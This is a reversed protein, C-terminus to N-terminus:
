IKHAEIVSTVFPRSSQPGIIRSFGAQKLINKIDQPHRVTGTQMARCYFAFYVDGPRNPRSWGRMPESVIIRGGKPLAEYIKEVLSSVTHDLHDYLVRNLTIVNYGHPLKHDQFSGRHVDIRQTKQQSQFEEVAGDIVHPLDFLGLSKVHGHRELLKLLFAGHGGGVDLVCDSDHFKVHSLTEEAVMQQTQTMVRSYRASIQPSVAGRAGFVYPWFEALETAEQKKLMDIPASLDRYLVDNHRIIDSLGPAGALVAGRRTLRYYEKSKALLGLAVGADLLLQVDSVHLSIDDALSEIARPGDLLRKFIDLEVLARLAATNCFGALIDFIYEGDRRAFWRMVPMRTAFAQWRADAVINMFLQHLRGVINYPMGASQHAGLSM